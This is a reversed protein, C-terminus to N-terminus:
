EAQQGGSAEARNLLEDSMEWAADIFNACEVEAYATLQIFEYETITRERLAQRVHLRKLVDFCKLAVFHMFNKSAIRGVGTTGGRGGRVRMSEKSTPNIWVVNPFLPDEIITPLEEGGALTRQEEPYDDMGPAKEGCLLIEPIDSGHSGESESVPVREPGIQIVAVAQNSPSAGYRVRVTAQGEKFGAIFRGSRGLLGMGPEDITGDILADDRPGNATEFTIQLKTRQGQLLVDEPVTISAATAAIVDCGIKNSKVAGDESELWIAGSGVASATIRDGSESAVLGSVSSCLRLREVRVPKTTGDDQREICKSRLPVSTGQIVVISERGPEFVIEDIREGYYKPKRKKKKGKGNEGSDGATNDDEDNGDGATDPDLYQRMLDRLSQLAAKAQERDRPRNEGMMARHLEEALSRVKERTWEELARVLPTDNLHVREAGALNEGVLAPCRIEGYIFSVSTIQVGLSQLPWNAVNNRSNWLRIVNRAKTEDSMQLQKASTLLRLFKPGDKGSLMDVSDGTEPDPLIDPIPYELPKEFGPYPELSIPAIPESTILKGDVIVWVECTEITMAAQGHSALIATLGEEALRKVKRKQRGDWETVESLYVGTFASRKQFAALVRQPLNASTLGFAKLYAELRSKPSTEPLNSVKQGGENAYGPKYRDGAHANKFGMRTRKGEFCSEMYAHDYAGRVMFAKGGNGHGAEIDDSLETRGATRSSWTTWGNFDDARAGAFDLVGLTHDETNALVVIQRTERDVVGLRSYQDKSNKVLEPLGDKVSRFRSLLQNLTEAVDIPIEDPLSYDSSSAKARNSMAANSNSARM